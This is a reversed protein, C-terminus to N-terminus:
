RGAEVAHPASAREVMAVDLDLFTLPALEDREASLLAARLSARTVPRGGLGAVVTDIRTSTGALAARV